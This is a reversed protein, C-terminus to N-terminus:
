NSPAVRFVRADSRGQDDVVRLMYQGPEPTWFFPKRSSSAGLYRTDLFWYVKYVDGDSVALLPMPERGNPGERIAYTLGVRPTVIEPAVGQRGALACGPPYPPPERRPIGAQRFIELIDTPWFEYVRLRAGPTNPGCARLGSRPDVLVERYVTDPQIPSVGPIFWTKLRAPCHAGPIGGSAACVQVRSLNLGKAKPLPSLGPQYVRIAEVMRFFLPAAIKRGVLAPNGQGDFNGVWVGLVYPGFVGMTWADRYAYSTGTKWHVPLRGQIWRLPHEVGPPKATGLMDLVMFAAEPSLLPRGEDLTDQKLFRLPKLKGGNALMAYLTALEELTVEAGGLVLSLGYHGSAKLRSIGAQRLFGHFTPTKLGAAVQIAPVNRSLVLADTATVPGRFESDFNEPEYLGYGTPADKLVTLPHIKGQDMALAYIFPKLASGPSRKARTGDVQGKIEPDFFDASGLVARVAMTRSDVLIAAANRVGLPGVRQLYASAQRQLIGQLQMDLTTHLRAGEQRRQLLGDVVHPAKFPLNGRTAFSVPLNLRNRKDADEPHAAVWRRFLKERAKALTPKGNIQMASGVRRDHVPRLRSPNQPIVSLTLAEALNLRDPPKGFYILSAAAIGEINGGYPALTLYAALIEDKGYHRELQLARIIQWLKGSIDRTNLGYRLRALQMTLTSAGLRRDGVVYTRWIARALAVPNIGPHWHFFRDEYLLTARLLNPSVADVLVPLRYRQDPSLTLRLLEGKRDYVARSFGVGDLLPPKPVLLWGAVLLVVVGTVFQLRKRM